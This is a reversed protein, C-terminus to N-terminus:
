EVHYLTQCQPLAKKAGFECSAMWINVQTTIMAVNNKDDAYLIVPIM